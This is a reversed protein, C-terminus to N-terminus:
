GEDDPDDDPSVVPGGAPRLDWKSFEPEVGPVTRHGDEDVADTDDVIVELNEGQDTDEDSVPPTTWRGKSFRGKGAGSNIDKTPRM